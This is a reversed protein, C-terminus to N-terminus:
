VMSPAVGFAKKFTYSFHSLNEFGVDLYVDSPKRGKEKILYHAEALRKHQLWQGPSTRFIKEFDRKFSALSRGTLRAFQNMPVNFMYHRNMYEELDIKYPESFDFLFEYFDPDARLLLEVAEQTKLEVLLNSPQAASIFWPMLSEFYGKIFPDTLERMPPGTYKGASQLKNEAAYRRLFDQSLFINVSKFEGGPRPVKTSKVLYNRRVIGMSGEKLVQLGDSTQLHMDGSISYGLSHEPVFQEHGRQKECYCSFLMNNVQTYIPENM